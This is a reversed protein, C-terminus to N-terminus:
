FDFKFRVRVGLQSVDPNDLYSFRKVLDVRFFKFINAVAVSGEIYPKKELSYTTTIGETNLPFAYSDKNKAPNNEDRLSGYLIKLSM